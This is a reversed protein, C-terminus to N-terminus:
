CSPPSRSALDIVFASKEPLWDSSALIELLVPQPLYLVPALSVALSTQQLHCAPCSSSHRPDKETHFFNVLLLTLLFSGLVAFFLFSQRRRM